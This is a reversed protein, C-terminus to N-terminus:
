SLHLRGCEAHRFNPSTFGAMCRNRKRMSKGEAARHTLNWYSVSIDTFTYTLYVCRCATERWRWRCFCHIPTCSRKRQCCLWHVLNADITSFAATQWDFWIKIYNQLASFREELYLPLHFIKPTNASSEQYQRVCLKYQQVTAQCKLSHRSSWSPCVGTKGLGAGAATCILSQTLLEGGGCM